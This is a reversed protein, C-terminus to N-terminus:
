FIGFIKKIFSRKYPRDLQFNFRLSLNGEVWILQSNLSSTTKSVMDIDYCSKRIRNRIRSPMKNYSIVLQDVMMDIYMSDVVDTYYNECAEKSSSYPLEYLSLNYEITLGDVKPECCKLSKSSDIRSYFRGAIRDCWDQGFSDLSFFLSFIILIKKM